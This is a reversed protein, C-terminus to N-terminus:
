DFSPQPLSGDHKSQVNLLTAFGPLCMGPTRMHTHTDTHIFIAFNMKEFVSMLFFFWKRESETLIVWHLSFKVFLGKHRQACSLLSM